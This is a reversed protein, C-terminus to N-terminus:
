GNGKERQQELESVSHLVRDLLDVIRGTIGVLEQTDIEVAQLEYRLQELQSQERVTIM